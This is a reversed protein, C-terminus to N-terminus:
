PSAYADFSVARAIEGPGTFTRRRLAAIQERKQDNPLSSAEIARRQVSYDRYKIQWATEETEFILVRALAADGIKSQLAQRMQEPSSGDAQLTEIMAIWKGHAERRQRPAHQDEQGLTDVGALPADTTSTDRQARLQAIDHEMRAFDDAFFVDAWGALTQRAIARRQALIRALRAPDFQTETAHRVEVNRIGLDYARYRRWVDLAEAQAPTGALQLGIQRGVFDDLGESTFDIEALLCYDFFDRVSRVRALHGSPDVPLRPAATGVLSSPTPRQPADAEVGNPAPPLAICGGLMVLSTLGM